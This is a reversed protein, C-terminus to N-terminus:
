LALKVQALQQYRLRLLALNVRFSPALQGMSRNLKSDFGRITTIPETDGSAELRKNRGLEIM